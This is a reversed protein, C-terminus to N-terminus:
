NNQFSCDVQSEMPSAKWFEQSTGLSAKTEQVMQLAGTSSFIYFLIAAETTAFRNYKLQETTKKKKLANWALNILSKKREKKSHLSEWLHRGRMASM